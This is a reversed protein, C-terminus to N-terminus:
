GAPHLDQDVDAHVGHLQAALVELGLDLDPLADPAAIQQGFDIQGPHGCGAVVGGRRHHDGVGLGVLPDVESRATRDRSTVLEQRRYCRCCNLNQVCSGTTAGTTAGELLTVSFEVQAVAPRKDNAPAAGASVLPGQCASDWFVQIVDGTLVRAELGIIDIGVNDAVDAEQTLLGLIADFNWRRGSAGVEIFNPALLESLRRVNARTQPTQM